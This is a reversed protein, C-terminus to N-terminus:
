LKRREPYYEALTKRLSAKARQLLSEVAKLSTDMIDAVEQRPRGEVLSLVFATRQTDPLREVAVALYRAKEKNELQVGPHDYMVVDVHELSATQKRQRQKVANLSTTVAIRYIWTKVASNGKFTDAKTYVKTFVAQTIEEALVTEHSFGLAVNYVMTSYQGYLLAFSEKDGKAIQSLLQLPDTM